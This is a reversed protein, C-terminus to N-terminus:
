VDNSFRRAILSQCLVEGIRRFFYLMELFSFNNDNNRGSYRHNIQPQFQSLSTLKSQLVKLFPIALHKGACVRDGCGFIPWNYDSSSLDSLFIEVQTNAKIDIKSRDLSIDHDIFRELLPFPHVVRICAEISELDPRNKMAVM